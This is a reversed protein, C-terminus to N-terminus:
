ELYLAPKAPMANKARNKPDYVVQKSSTSDASYVIVEKLGLERKIYGREKSYLEFEDPLGNKIILRLKEEGFSTAVKVIRRTEDALTKMSSSPNQKALHELITSFEKGELRQSIVCRFIAQKEKPATYVYLRGKSIPLIKLLSRADDLINELLWEVVEAGEDIKLENGKPWSSQSVLSSSSTYGMEQWMEEATFPIFPFLLRAWISLVTKITEDRPVDVRSVYRKIDNWCDFFAAQFGTKTELSDLAETTKKVKASVSSVVWSDPEIEPRSRARQVLNRAFAPLSKVKALLDQVNKVRWDPDDMGEASSIVAARVTDAGYDDLAQSLPVINGKSKSMKVGDIMMMGNAGLGRPWDERPFLATHQFIFFTLHNPVLEKASNRLDVPYWYDFEEKMNRLVQEDIGSARSVDRTEGIGLFVFDFVEDKLQEPRIKREVIEKRITYYANYLTSDSLTEVIWDKDWPLPTGLGVRRAMPWEKLWDIVDHFWSRASEPYVRAMDVDEHALAKWKPDSYKLFWQDQLVKVICRTLCRCVVKEPLDYMSDAKKAAKLDEQIRSKAESVKMGAYEATNEKMVGSHFEEKYVLQTAEGCKPDLQSQVGLKECTEIAPFEGYGQVKILSIPKIERVVRIDLGNISEKKSTQQLDKLAMYDFPAHAPVSYVIGTGNEAEVFEAPLVPIRRSQVPDIAYKGVLGSGKVEGVIKVQKLQESLKLAADKSIIWDEKEDIRAKVYSINPNVWLNTAGFVTEPRFTAAPLYTEDVSFKVLTYEEFTVGEGELRDHDGTPSKDRPCWVVPHTGRVVYGREYLKKYQWEVFRSFTPELSTTHFERRWDISMGLRRLAERGRTTYYEAMYAPDVFKKLEEKPVKDIEVFERIMAPDSNALREAAAVIPQGTWHWAWPFLVNFGQMRKFRAYVDIRTSTFAHGIHLPGNMYPFPFTVFKKPRSKDVDSDHLHRKEWEQRWKAEYSLPSGSGLLPPTVKKNKKRQAIIEINEKKQKTILKRKGRASSKEL